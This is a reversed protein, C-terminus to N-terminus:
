GRGKRNSNASPAFRPRRELRRMEEEAEAEEQEQIARERAVREVHEGRQRDLVQQQTNAISEFSPSLHAGTPTADPVPSHGQSSASASKTVRGSWRPPGSPVQSSPASTSAMSSHPVNAYPSSPHPLSPSCASTNPSSASPANSAKKLNLRPKPRPRKSQKPPSESMTLQPDTHIIHFLPTSTPPHHIILILGSSTPVLPSGTADLAM